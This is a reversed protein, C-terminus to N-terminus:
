PTRVFECNDIDEKTLTPGGPEFFYKLIIPLSDISLLKAEAIEFLYEKGLCAVLMYPNPQNESSMFNTFIELRQDQTLQYNRIYRTYIYDRGIVIKAIEFRQTQTLEFNNILESFRSFFTSPDERYSTARALMKAIEFSHDNTLHFAQITQCVKLPEDAAALKAFEFRLNPDAIGYNEFFDSSIRYNTGSAAIKAIELRKEQTMEKIGCNAICQSMSERDNAVALKVIEFLLDIKQLESIEDPKQLVYIGDSLLPSNARTVTRNKEDFEKTQQLFKEALINKAASISNTHKGALHIWARGYCSKKVFEGAKNQECLHLDGAKLHAFFSEGLGSYLKQYVDPNPNM